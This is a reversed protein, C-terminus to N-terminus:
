HFELIVWWFDHKIDKETGTLPFMQNNLGFRLSLVKGVFTCRTLATTKGTTMYPHSIFFDSHWLISAKPSHHQLLSKLTGQVALFGLDDIKFSILGPHENSPSISSSSLRNLRKWSQSVGYVVAWWAEGNRPNERCSCQRPNGNGEGICSLSFQFLLQETTDSETCGWLRCGVLSGQGQSGGPLFVPTPQWKRRWHM